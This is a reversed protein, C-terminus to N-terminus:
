SGRRVRTLTGTKDTCIVSVAGLTEVTKLSKCLVKNKKLLNATITLSATVAIPLGEPIYAIAVSVCDVILTAVNIYDPHAKHLWGGRTIPLFRSANTPYRLEHPTVYWVSALIVIWTVMIIFILLVFRLVEKEITTLGTKPEGALKAIRGFVTSDGTAVVIATATGSV